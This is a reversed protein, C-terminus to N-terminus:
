GSFQHLVSAGDAPGFDVAALGREDLATRRAVLGRAGLQHGGMLAHDVVQRQVQQAVAVLREVERLFDEQADEAGERAEAALRGEAGPDIADDDVLRPVALAPPPPSMAGVLDREVLVQLLEALHLLLVIGGRRVAHERALLRRRADPGRQVMEREIL